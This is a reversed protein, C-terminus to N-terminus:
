ADLKPIVKNVFYIFLSVYLMCVLIYRILKIQEKFPELDLMNLKFGPVFEIEFKPLKNLASPDDDISPTKILDKSDDIISGVDSPYRIVPTNIIEKAKNSIGEMGDPIGNNDSDVRFSDSVFLKTLLDDLRNILNDLNKSTTVRITNSKEGARNLFYFTYDRGPSLNTVTISSENISSEWLSGNVYLDVTSYLSNWKLQVYTDALEIVELPYVEIVTFPMTQKALGTNGLSDIVKYWYTKGNQLGHEVYRSSTIETIFYFDTNNESKYIEYPPNGNIINLDIAGPTHSGEISLVYGYVYFPFFILLFTIIIIIKKINVM